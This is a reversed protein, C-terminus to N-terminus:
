DDSLLWDIAEQDEGVQFFQRNVDFRAVMTANKVIMPYTSDSYIHAIRVVIDDRMVLKKMGNTMASFSPTRVNEYNHLVRLTMNEPTKDMLTSFLQIYDDVAQRSIDDLWTVQHIGNELHEYRMNNSM